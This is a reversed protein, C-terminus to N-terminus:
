TSWPCRHGGSEDSRDLRGAARRSHDTPPNQSAWECVKTNVRHQNNTVEMKHLFEPHFSSVPDSSITYDYESIAAVEHTLCNVSLSHVAIQMYKFGLTNAARRPTSYVTKQTVTIFSGQRKISDVDVFVEGRDNSTVLAWNQAYCANGLCVSLVYLAGATVVLLHRLATLASFIGM